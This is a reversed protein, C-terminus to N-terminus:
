LSHVFVLRSIFVVISMCFCMSHKRYAARSIRQLGSGGWEHKACALMSATSIELNLGLSHWYRVPVLCFSAAQMLQWYGSTKIRVQMSHRVFNRWHLYCYKSICATWHASRQNPVCSSCRCLRRLRRSIVQPKRALGPKKHMNIRLSQREEARSYEEQSAVRLLSCRFTRWNLVRQRLISATYWPYSLSM